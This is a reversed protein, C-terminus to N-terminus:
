RRSTADAGLVPAQRQREEVLVLVGGVPAGSWSSGTPLTPTNQPRSFHNLLWHCSVLGRSWSTRRRLAAVEGLHGVQDRDVGGDAPTFVQCNSSVM